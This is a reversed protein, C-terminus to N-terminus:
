LNKLNDFKPVYNPGATSINCNTVDLYTMNAQAEIGDNSWGLHTDNTLILTDLCTVHYTDKLARLSTMTSCDALNLYRLTALDTPVQIYGDTPDGDNLGAYASFGTLHTGSADLHQLNTCYRLYINSLQTCGSVDLWKLTTLNHKLVIRYQQSSTLSSKSRFGKLKPLGAAKLVELNAAAPLFIRDMNTCYSVDVYKLSSMYNGPTGWFDFNTCHHMVLTELNTLNQLNASGYFNANRSIDLYTINANNNNIVIGPGSVNTVNSTGTTAALTILNCNSAKLTTLARLTTLNAGTALTPNDSIDLTTLGTLLQLGTLETIDKGSVDLTTLTTEDIVGNQAYPELAARFNNDPFNTTNLTVSAEAYSLALFALLLAFCTRLFLLKKM